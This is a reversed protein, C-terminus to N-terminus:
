HFSRELKTAIDNIDAIVDKSLGNILVVNGGIAEAIVTAARSDYQPQGFVVKVRQTRAGEILDRLQKSTPPRGGAEIVCEKLGYSDAFYGFGPHFVYFSRGRYPGLLRAIRGDLEDLRKNLTALNKQYDPRHAPDLRGLAQAVNKAQRKLLRPSLWVHPDPEGALTSHDHGEGTEHEICQADMPRKTIGETADVVELRPNAARAKELLVQEFPMDIQFFIAARSLAFIQRPTPQFTHPDQGPQVLAEVHVHDGAIQEVLYALPPIGTFAALRGPEPQQQTQSSCGGTFFFVAISLACLAWKKGSPAARRRNLPAPSFLEERAAVRGALSSHYALPLSM